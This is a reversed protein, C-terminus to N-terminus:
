MVIFDTHAVGSAGHVEVVIDQEFLALAEPAEINIKSILHNIQQPPRGHDAEALADAEVVVERSILNLAEVLTDLLITTILDGDFSFSRFVIEM